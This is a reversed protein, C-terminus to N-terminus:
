RRAFLPELGLRRFEAEGTAVEEARERVAAFGLSLDAFSLKGKAGHKTVFAHLEDLPPEFVRIDTERLDDWWAKAVRTGGTRQLILSFSEAVIERTTFAFEAEDIAREVAAALPGGKSMEFFAWTDIAIATM